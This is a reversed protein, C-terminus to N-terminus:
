QYAPSPKYGGDGISPENGNLIKIDSNNNGTVTTSNYANLAAGGDIVNLGERPSTIYEWLDKWGKRQIEIGDDVGKQHIAMIEESQLKLNGGTLEKGDMLAQIEAQRDEYQQKFTTLEEKTPAFYGYTGTIFSEVNDVFERGKESGLKELREVEKLNKQLVTQEALLIQDYSLGEIMTDQGYMAQAAALIDADLNQLKEQQYAISDKVAKEYDEVPIGGMIPLIQKDEDDLYSFKELVSSDVIPQTTLATEDKLKDAAEKNLFKQTWDRLDAYAQSKTFVDIGMGILSTVTVAGAFMLGAPGLLGAGVRMLASRGLMKMIPGRSAFLASGALSGGLATGFGGGGEGGPASAGLLGASAMASKNVSINEKLLKKNEKDRELQDFRDAKLLAFNDKDIQLQQWLTEYINKQLENNVQGLAINNSLTTSIKQISPTIRLAIENMVLENSAQINGLTKNVDTLTTM